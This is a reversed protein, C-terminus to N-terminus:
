PFTWNEVVLDDIRGFHRENNTIVTLGHKLATAAIFLDSDNIIEGRQKLTAKAKGFFRGLRHEFPIVNLEPILEDLLALNEAVNTSNYAGFYLEAVTIASIFIQDPSAEDMKQRVHPHKQTLWYILIDTDILYSMSKAM